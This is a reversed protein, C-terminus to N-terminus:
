ADALVVESGDLKDKTGFSIIRAGYKERTKRYEEMLRFATHMKMPGFPMAVSFTNGDPDIWELVCYQKWDDYM